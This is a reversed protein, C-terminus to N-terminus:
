PVKVVAEGTILPKGEASVCTTRITLINKDDRKGVVELEFRVEQDIFIPGRFRVEQGLYITGEGPFATGLVKSIHSVALMGHIIRQGFVTERAFAEDLHVPNKDGSVEAFAVVEAETFARTESYTDGVTMTEFL